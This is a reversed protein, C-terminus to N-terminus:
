TVRLFPACAPASRNGAPDLAVVCFRLQRSRLKSPVPWQVSVNRTGIKFGEPSTVTAVLTGQEYIRVLAKSHGSDDFLDFHLTAPKGRTASAPHATVLPAKTDPSNLANAATLAQVAATASRVLDNPSGAAVPISHLVQQEATTPRGLDYIGFGAPMVVLLPGAYWLGLEIALFHAYDAPQGFLSPISGLDEASYIVAVKVRNGHLYVGDVAQDLAARVPPSPSEYPYFVSQTLLYDSAPDGDARSAAPAAAAALFVAAALVWRLRGAQIV